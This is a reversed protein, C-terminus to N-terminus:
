AFHNDDQPLIGKLKTTTSQSPHTALGFYAAGREFISEPRNNTLRSVGPLKPEFQAVRKPKIQAVPYDPTLQGREFISEPRNNRLM